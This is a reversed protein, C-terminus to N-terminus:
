IKLLIKIYIYKKEANEINIAYKGKYKKKRIEPLKMICCKILFLMYYSITISEHEELQEKIQRLMVMQYIM